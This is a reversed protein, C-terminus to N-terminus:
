RCKRFVFLWFLWVVIVLYSHPLFIISDPFTWEFKVSYSYRFKQLSDLMLQEESVNSFFDYGSNSDETIIVDPEYLIHPYVLYFQRCAKFLTTNLGKESIQNEVKVNISKISDALFKMNDVM